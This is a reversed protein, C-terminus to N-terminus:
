LTQHKRFTLEVIRVADINFRIRRQTRVREVDVEVLAAGLGFEASLEVLVGYDHLVVVLEYLYTLLPKLSCSSEPKVISLLQKM